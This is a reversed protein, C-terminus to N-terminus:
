GKQGGPPPPSLPRAPEPPLGLSGLVGPLGSFGLSGSSSSSSSSSLLLVCSFDCSLLVFCEEVADDEGHLAIVADSQETNHEVGVPALVTEQEVVQM